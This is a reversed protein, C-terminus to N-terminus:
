TNHLLKPSPDSLYMGEKEEPRGKKPSTRLTPTVIEEEHGKQFPDREDISNRSNQHIKKGRRM